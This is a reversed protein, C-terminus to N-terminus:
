EDKGFVRDRHRRLDRILRNIGARDLDAWLSGFQEGDDGNDIIRNGSEDLRQVGLTVHGLDPWSRVILGNPYFPHYQGSNGDPSQKSDEYVTGHNQGHIISENAGM